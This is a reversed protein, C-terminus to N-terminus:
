AAQDPKGKRSQKLKWEVSKRWLRQEPTEFPDKGHFMRAHVHEILVDKVFDGADRPTKPPAGGVEDYLILIAPNRIGEAQIRRDLRDYWNWYVRQMDVTVPSGDPFLLTREEFESLYTEEVQRTFDDM